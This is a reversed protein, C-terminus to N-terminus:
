KECPKVTRLAHKNRLATFDWLKVEYDLAGTAFRTATPDVALATVPRIGHEIKAEHELPFSKQAETDSDGDEESDGEGDDDDDDEEPESDSSDSSDDQSKAVKTTTPPPPMPGIM